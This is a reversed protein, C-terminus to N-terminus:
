EGSVGTISPVINLAPDPDPEPPIPIEQGTLRSTTVKLDDTTYYTEYEGAPNRYNNNGGLVVLNWGVMAAGTRVWPINSYRYQCQGNIYYATVGDAAGPASNMKFQYEHLYYQGDGFNGPKKWGGEPTGNSLIARSFIVHDGRNHNFVGCDMDSVDWRYSAREAEPEVIILSYHTKRMNGTSDTEGWNSWGGVAFPGHSESGHWDFINGGKYHSVHFFKQADLGDYYNPDFKRWFSIWIEKHGHDTPQDTLSIYISGDSAEFASSTLPVENWNTMAKGQGGRANFSSISLSDYQNNQVYTLSEFYALYQPGSPTCSKISPFTTPADSCTKANASTGQPVSWNEHGDFDDEFIMGGIALSCM